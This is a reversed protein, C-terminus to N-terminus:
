EGGTLSALEADWDVSAVGDIEATLLDLTKTIQVVRERLIARADENLNADHIERIAAAIKVKAVGLMADAATARLDPREKRAAEEREEAQRSKISVDTQDAATDLARRTTNRDSASMGSILQQTADRRVDESTYALANAAAQATDPDAMIAATMAKKNNAIEQVKGRGIGAEEAARTLRERRDESMDGGGAGQYFTRWEPLNEVDLDIEQGPTLDDGHPVHGAEAARNWAALHALVRKNSTGSRNAFALGSVKGNQNRDFDSGRRVGAPAKEVNRAVLLGLRWGGQKLHLGFEQADANTANTDHSM